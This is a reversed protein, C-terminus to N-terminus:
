PTRLIVTKQTPCIKPNQVAMYPPTKGVAATVDSHKDSNLTETVAFFHSQLKENFILIRPLIEFYFVTPIM